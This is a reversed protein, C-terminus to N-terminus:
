DGENSSAYTNRRGLGFEQRIANETFAHPNTQTPPTDPNLDFDFPEMAIPLGVAQRERNLTQVTRTGLTEATEGPVVTGTVANYAHCLEHYLGIIPLLGSPSFNPNYRVVGGYVPTGPQGNHIHPEVTTSAPTFSANAMEFFEIRVAKGGRQAAIDLAELLTQGNPSLRLLALDAEVRMIFQPSGEITIGVKGAESALVPTHHITDPDDPMLVAVIQQATSLPLTNLKELMWERREANTIAVMTTTAQSYVTDIPKLRSVLDHGRGPYIVHTGTGATIVDNGDGGSLINHGSGGTIIDDGPGADIFNLGSGALVRDDGEGAYVRATAHSAIHIHDDGSGADLNSIGSTVRVTDDGEGTLLTSRSGGVCLYDNGPGSNIVVPNEIADDVYLTDAGERTKLIITQNKSSPIIKYLVQSVYLHLQNQVVTLWLMNQEAKFTFRLLDDLPPKRKLTRLRIRVADLNNDQFVTEESSLPLIPDLGLDSLSLCGGQIAHIASPTDPVFLPRTM